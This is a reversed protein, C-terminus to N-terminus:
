RISGIRIILFIANLVIAIIGLVYGATAMGDGGYRPSSAILKKASKSKSIAVWGLIFGCVFLSVIGWVLAATAGPATVKPGHYLGDPSLITECFPCLEEHAGVAQGCKPCTVGGSPKLVEVPPPPAEMQKLPANVCGPTACGGKATWCSAHHEGGCANCVTAEEGLGLPASCRVCPKGDLAKNVRLNRSADEM